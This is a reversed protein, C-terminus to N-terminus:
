AVPRATSAGRIGCRMALSIQDIATAYQDQKSKLITNKFRIIGQRNWNNYQNYSIFQGGGVDVVVKENYLYYVVKEKKIIKPEM